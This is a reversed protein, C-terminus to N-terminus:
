SEVTVLPTPADSQVAHVFHLVLGAPPREYRVQSAAPREDRVTAGLPAQPLILTLDGDRL